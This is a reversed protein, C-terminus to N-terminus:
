YWGYYKAILADLAQERILRDVAAKGSDIATNTASTMLSALMGTAATIAAGKAIAKAIDKASEKKKDVGAAKNVVVQATRQVAQQKFQNGAQKASRNLARRAAKGATTLTGDTNQFRRVGWKMGLVGYHMLENENTM